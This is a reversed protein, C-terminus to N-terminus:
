DGSVHLHCSLHHKDDTRVQTTATPNEPPLLISQCEFKIVEESQSIVITQRPHAIGIPGPLALIASGRGAVIM